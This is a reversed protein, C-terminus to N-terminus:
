LCTFWGILTAVRTAKAAFATFNPWSLKDKKFWLVFALQVLFETSRRFYCYEHM